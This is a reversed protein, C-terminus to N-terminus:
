KVIDNGQIDKSDIRRIGDPTVITYTDSRVTVAGTLVEGSYLHIRDIRNYKVDGTEPKDTIVKTTEKKKDEPVVESKAAAAEIKKEDAASDSDEVDKLTEDKDASQTEDSVDKKEAAAYIESRKEESDDEKVASEDKLSPTERDPVGRKEVVTEKKKQVVVKEAAPKVSVADGTVGAPKRVSVERSREQTDVAPRDTIRGSTISEGGPDDMEEGPTIERMQGIGGIDNISSVSSDDKFFMRRESCIFFLLLILLIISIIILLPKKINM